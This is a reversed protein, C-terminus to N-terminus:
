KWFSSMGKLIDFMGTSMGKMMETMTSTMGKMMGAPDALQELAVMRAVRERNPESLNQVRDGLETMRVFDNAKIAAILEKALAVPDEDDTRTFFFIGIVLILVAGLVVVLRRTLRKSPVKASTQGSTFSTTEEGANPPVAESSKPTISHKTITPAQSVSVAKPLIFNTAAGRSLRLQHLDQLVEDISTPRDSPKKQLLRQVLQSLKGPVQPNMEELPPPTHTALAMLVEYTTNGKFPLKGTTMRFLMAGFSFLDARVDVSEGAAQEPAMYHPSGVVDGSRTLETIREQPRALGFDLIKVRGSPSELFINSPKIDRHILGRAHAAQLGIAVEFAIRLFEDVETLQGSELYQDLPRGELLEMVFFPVGEAETVHHITVVHDSKVGAMARAERLFRERAIPKERLEPLMMKLAVQRHLLLDEALFVCGMGGRGIERVLRFDGLKEPMAEVSPM